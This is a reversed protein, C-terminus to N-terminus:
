MLIYYEPGRPLRLDRTGTVSDCINTPINWKGDKISTIQAKEKKNRGSLRM